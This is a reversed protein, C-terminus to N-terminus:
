LKARRSEEEREKKKKSMSDLVRFSLKMSKVSQHSLVYIKPSIKVGRYHVNSSSTGVQALDPWRSSKMPCQDVKSSISSCGRHINNDRLMPTAQRGVVTQAEDPAAM